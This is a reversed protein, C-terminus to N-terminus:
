IAERHLLELRVRGELHALFGHRAVVKIDKQLVEPFADPIEADDKTHKMSARDLKKKSAYGTATM